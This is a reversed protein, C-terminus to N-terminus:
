LHQLLTASKNGFVSNRKQKQKTLGTHVGAKSSRQKSAPTFPIAINLIIKFFETVLTHAQNIQSLIPVLPSKDVPYPVIPNCLICSIGQNALSSNPKWHPIQQM